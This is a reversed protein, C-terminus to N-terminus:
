QTFPVVRVPRSREAAGYLDSVRFSRYVSALARVSGVINGASDVEISLATPNVPSAPDFIVGANWHYDGDQLRQASGLALSRVGLSANLLLRATRREEDLELVQGRSSGASQGNLRTNGNDFLTLTSLSGPEYGPDHQHSFWPYPDASDITFDGDKGLRWLIDGNGAGDRFDIKILWDQHRSSYLLAGDPTEQVANGHTWDNADNALYHVPCGSGALCTEGLVARRHPDLHDFADWSWVVQLDSDLVLVMDGIVDVAGAGQVDYLIQEVAALVLLRGGSLPRAEHHFASIARKKLTALQENVRAVNTEQVTMGALDFRRVADHAPDTADIIGYFTGDGGPRTMYTVDSPGYWLVDGGSDTAVAPLHLPAELLIEEPASLTGTAPVILGSVSADAPGSTFTV